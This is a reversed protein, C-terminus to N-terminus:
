FVLIFGQIVTVIAAQNSKLGRQNASQSSAIYRWVTSLGILCLRRLCLDVNCHYQVIKHKTALESIVEPGVM